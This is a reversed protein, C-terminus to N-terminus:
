HFNKNIFTTDLSFILCLWIFIANAKADKTFYSLVILNLEVVDDLDFVLVANSEDGDVFDVRLISSPVGPLGVIGLKNM